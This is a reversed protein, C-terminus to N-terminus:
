GLQLMLCSSTHSGNQLRAYYSGAPMTGGQFLARDTQAAPYEKDVLVAVVRGTMDIVQLLTHGGQTSFEITTQSEFPNPYNRPKGISAAPATIGCGAGIVV